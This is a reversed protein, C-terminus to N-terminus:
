YDDDPQASAGGDPFEEEATGGLLDQQSGFARYQCYFGV